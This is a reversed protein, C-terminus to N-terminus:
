ARGAFLDAFEAKFLRKREHGDRVDPHWTPHRRMSEAHSDWGSPWSAFAHGCLPCNVAVRTQGDEVNRAAGSRRPTRATRTAPDDPPLQGPVLIHGDGDDSRIASARGDIWAAATLYSLGSDIVDDFAKGLRVSAATGATAEIAAAVVLSAASRWAQNQFIESFGNLPRFGLEAAAARTLIAGRGVASKYEGVWGPLRRGYAGQAGLAWITAAPFVEVLLKRPALLPPTAGDWVHFGHQARLVSVMEAIRPPVPAGPQATGHPGTRWPDASARKLVGLRLDCSRHKSGKNGTTPHRTKSPLGQKTTLLPADLALVVRTSEDLPLCAAIAAVLLGADADNLPLRYDGMANPTPSQALDVRHHRIAGGPDRWVLPRGAHRRMPGAVAGGPLTLVLARSRM